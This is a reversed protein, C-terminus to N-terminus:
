RDGPEVVLDQTVSSDGPTPEIWRFAHFQETFWMKRGIHALWDARRDKIADVGAARVYPGFVYAALVGPGPPIVLRFVGDADTFHMKSQEAPDLNARRHPNDDFAFYSVRGRVSKGTQKDIIRGTVRVGRDLAIDLHVPEKGPPKEVRVQSGFYPPCRDAPLRPDIGFWNRGASFDCAPAAVLKGERGLQLGVLRFRGQADTMTRVVSAQRAFSQWGYVLIDALPRGTERDRVVGEIARTPGAVHQFTAGYVTWPAYSRPNRQAPLHIPAGPWTRADFCTTEITPGDLQLTAIRGHGIGTIRFRGDPGTTADPIFAPSTASAVRNPLIPSGLTDWEKREELGKQSSDLQEAIAVQISRAYSYSVPRVANLAKLAKVSVEDGFTRGAISLRVEMVKVSVGAVPRGELDVVRGAIPADDRAMTLTSDSFADGDDALGFSYGPARAVLNVADQEQRWPGGTFDKGPVAFRFGGDPGSTARVTRYTSPDLAEGALHLTAGAVPRGRPDVVRGRFTRSEPTDPPRVAAPRAPDASAASPTPMMARSRSPPSAPRGARPEDERWGGGEVRWSSPSAAGVGWTIGGLAILAVCLAAVVKLRGLVMSKICRRALAEAATAVVQGIALRAARSAFPHAAAVAAEVWGPPVQAATPRALTAALTEATLAVGRRTLRSRLLARAGTLRRQVTAPGCGLEAAAQAHTKGELDCLLLPLRYRDSLRDLEEHLVRRWDDAPESRHPDAIRCAVADRECARRRASETGARVAVRHAVQRLWVALAGRGRISRAKCVLVLFTAQFADEVDEPRRLVSRCTRVVMPGHREVLAAFAAGDGRTLFQELLRDDPLGAVTGEVFLHHIQRLAGGMRAGTM